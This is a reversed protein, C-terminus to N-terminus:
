GAVIAPPPPAGVVVVDRSSIKPPAVSAIFPPDDLRVRSVVDITFAPFATHACGTM